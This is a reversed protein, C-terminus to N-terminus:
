KVVVAARRVTTVTPEKGRRKMRGGIRDCEVVVEVCGFTWTQTGIKCQPAPSWNVLESVHVLAPDARRIDHERMVVLEFPYSLFGEVSRLSASCVTTYAAVYPTWASRTRKLTPRSSVCVSTPVNERASLAMPFSYIRADSGCASRAGDSLSSGGSSLSTRLAFAATSSM